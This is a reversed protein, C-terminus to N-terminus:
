DVAAGERKRAPSRPHGNRTGPLHRRLTIQITKCDAPVDKLNSLFGNVMGMLVGAPFPRLPVDRADVALAVSLLPIGPVTINGLLFDALEEMEDFGFAPREHLGRTNGVVAVVNEVTPQVLNGDVVMVKPVSSSKFGEALVLDIDGGFSSVLASLGRDGEVREVKTILGPSSAISVVAGANFHRDSDSEEHDHDHGHPCHKITAIRLGRKSLVEVLGTVVRTKGSNSNGVVTVVPPGSM